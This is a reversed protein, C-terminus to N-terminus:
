LRDKEIKEGYDPWFRLACPEDDALICTENHQMQHLQNCHGGSACVDCYPIGVAVRRLTLPLGKSVHEKPADSILRFAPLGIVHVNQLNNRRFYTDDKVRSIAASKFFCCRASPHM